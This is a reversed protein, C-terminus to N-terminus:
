KLTGSVDKAANRVRKFFASIAGWYEQAFKHSLDNHGANEIVRFYKEGPANRYITQGSAIPIVQDATGHVILLPAKVQKIKKANEFASGTLGAAFGLGMADAQAAASSLPSILVVGALPKDRALDTAATSGLSRGFLVINQPAYKLTAIAFAYAANADSYIGVESPSGDSKGYGRYSIALVSTGVQRLLQLDRLRHFVNGANGHFYITLTDADPHKLHLAHLRVGDDAGFFVEKTGPPFKDSTVTYRTDPHFAFHNVLPKCAAL